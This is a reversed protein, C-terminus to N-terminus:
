LNQGCTWQALGPIPTKYPKKSQEYDAFKGSKRSPNLVSFRKLRNMTPTTIKKLHCLLPSQHSTKNQVAVLCKKPLGKNPFKTPDIRHQLQMTRDVTREVANSWLQLAEIPSMDTNQFKNEFDAQDAIEDYCERLKVLDLPFQAWSEPMKWKMVSPAINPINFEIKLPSHSDMALDHCVQMDHILGVLMPHILFSDNSTAGRCTHPLVSGFKQQYFTHAEVVGMQEFQTFSHLKYPPINFDAGILFPMKIDTILQYIRALLLDNMRKSELDRSVFGYAAVTLIEVCGMKVIGFAIRGTAWLIPDVTYRVSRTPLCTVVAAGLNEGRLSIRDDVTSFKSNVPQSWHVKFGDKAINNTFEHQVSQTASTESVFVIESKLDMIEKKHSFIAHPNCVAVSIKKAPGPNAAEGVRSALLHSYCSMSVVHFWSAVSMYILSCLVADFKWSCVSTTEVNRHTYKSLSEICSMMVPHMSQPDFWLPVLNNFAIVPVFVALNGPKDNCWKMVFTHLNTIERIPKSHCFTVKAFPPFM